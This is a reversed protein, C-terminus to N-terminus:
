AKCVTHVMWLIDINRNIYDNSLITWAIRPLINRLSNQKQWQVLLYFTWCSELITWTNQINSCYILTDSGFKKSYGYTKIEM